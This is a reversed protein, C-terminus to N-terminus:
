DKTKTKPVPLHQLAKLKGSLWMGLGKKKKSKVKLYPNVLNGLNAKSSSAKYIFALRSSKM